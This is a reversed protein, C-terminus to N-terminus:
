WDLGRRMRNERRILWMGGALLALAVLGLYGSVFPYNAVDPQPNLPVNGFRWMWFLFWLSLSSVAGSISDRRAASVFFALASLVAMPVFWSWVLTWLEISPELASLAASAAVSLALDFSFVLLMRALVIVEIPVPLAREVELAHEVEAGYVFAIGAAAILPAAFVFALTQHAPELVVLTVLLGLLVMGASALWIERRVVRVQARLFLVPWAEHWIARRPKGVVAALQRALADAAAPDATHQWSRLRQVVPLMNEALEDSGLDEALMRRLRERESTENDRM